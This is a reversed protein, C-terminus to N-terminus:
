RSAKQRGHRKKAREAVLIEKLTDVVRKVDADTLGPYLPLSLAQAYYAEMNPFYASIDGCQKQFLPHKYLPIYHVQSGIGFSKLKAIVQNRTTNYATFDIQVVCLHFATDADFQATFLKLDPMGALYRRYASMLERRKSIFDDIRRLQSLGLAAQFETVNYNGAMEVVEYYGDYCQELPAELYAPEREIGNNRYRKLRHYLEPDNTTVMGGEGMTITKAPHFSFMTMDSWACSGVKQGDQYCSGIAHAADEIIITDPNRISVNLKQMDVPIGSFHVPMIATQGRSANIGNLADEMQNLDMNGTSRDIDVFIPTAGLRMGATATAVFTNPSTILRDHPGMKAAHCAAFLAATGSNFAVAYTVNCYQAMAQEFADVFPGRTVISSRLAYGVEQIDAENISQLAYPLFSDSQM